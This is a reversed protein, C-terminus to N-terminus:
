TTKDHPHRSTASWGSGLKFWHRAFNLRRTSYPPILVFNWKSGKAAMRCTPRVNDCTKPNKAVLLRNVIKSFKGKKDHRM